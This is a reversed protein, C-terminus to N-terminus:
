AVQEVATLHSNPSTPTSVARMGPIEHGLRLAALIEPVGGEVM